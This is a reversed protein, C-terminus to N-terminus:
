VAFNLNLVFGAMIKLADIKEVFDKMSVNKDVAALKKDLLLKLNDGFERPTLQKSKQGQIKMSRIRFIPNKKPVSISTDRAFMVETKMRKIRAKEDINENEFFDDIEKVSTFPGGIEKLEGIQKLLRGEIKLNSIQKNSMKEGAIQEQRKNYVTKVEKIELSVQRYDRFSGGFKERLTKTGEIMISRSTAQLNRNKKTRHGVKGCANEMDLNNIPAQERVTNSLESIPFEPEFEESIGYDRRQRALTTQLDPLMFNGLKIAEVMNNKLVSQLTAVVHDKYGAKVADFLEQSVGPCWPADLSFFDQDLEGSMKLFLGKFFISLTNHNSKKSLTKSHFPEVLQLGFAGVVALVLIMYEQDYTDRVICALRNDIDPHSSLFDNVADRMYLVVSCAKPLCGFREDKYLFMEYEIGNQLCYKQFDEGRNWPKHKMEMGVLRTICDVFQGALSGNKSNHEIQVMFGGLINNVGIQNEIMAVSSNMSRAFGLNTHTTCFIQGTKHDLDFLKSVEESLFKNHSVSDTLHLDMIKYLDGPKKGSALALLQFGMAAQEAIEEKSEGAVPITPLPLLEYRNIHIASVNFKGVGKKTTSDSAHTFVNGGDSSRAVLEEAEAAMGQAEVQEAVKRISRENPLTDLDIAALQENEHDDEEAIKFERDFVRNAVIQVANQAEPISLGIGILDTIALYISDKVKRESNRVHRFKLPLPDHLREAQQVFSRKRKQTRIQNIDGTVNVAEVGVTSDDDKYDPDINDVDDITEEDQEVRKFQEEAGEKQKEQYLSLKAKRAEQELWVPDVDNMKALCLIKRKDHRAINSDMQSNLYEHEAPSMKIGFKEELKKIRERDETSIDFVTDKDIKFKQYRELSAQSPKGKLFIKRILFFEQYKTELLKTVNNPTKTYVNRKTWHVVLINAVIESAAKWSVKNSVTHKIAGIIESTIPLHGSGAWDGPDFPPFDVDPNESSRTLKPKPASM